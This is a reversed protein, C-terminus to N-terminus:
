GDTPEAASRAQEAGQELMATVQEPPMQSNILMLLGALMQDNVAGGSFNKIKKFPLNKFIAAFFDDEEALSLPGRGTQQLMFDVVARGQPDAVIDGIIDDRTLVRPPLAGAQLDLALVARIDASSSGVLIEYAGPEVVWRDHVESFYALDAPELTVAVRETQGPELEVKDFGVLERDPRPESPDLQRSYIQVVEAGRRTGSNTVEVTVDFAALESVVGPAEADAYDFTTYSLGHGFPYAVERGFTQFYRYGVYLGEGYDVSTPGGPFNLASAHDGSVLRGQGQFAVKAAAFFHEAAIAHRAVLDASQSM